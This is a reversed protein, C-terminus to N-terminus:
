NVTALPRFQWTAREVPLLGAVRLEAVGTLVGPLTTWYSPKAGSDM